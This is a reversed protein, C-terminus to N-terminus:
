STHVARGQFSCLGYFNRESSMPSFAFCFLILFLAFSLLHKWNKHLLLSRVHNKLANVNALDRSLHQFGLGSAETKLVEWPVQRIKICSFWIQDRYHLVLLRKIAVMRCMCRSYQFYVSYWITSVRDGFNEFCIRAYDNFYDVITENEWGGIDQLAQPLDWHYLTVM